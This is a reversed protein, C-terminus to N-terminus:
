GLAQDETINLAFPDLKVATFGLDVYHRARQAAHAPDLWLDRLVRGLNDGTSDAYLYTYTRVRDRMRGGLLRHVPRAVDKGVIDWCAM